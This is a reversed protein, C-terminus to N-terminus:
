EFNVVLSEEGKLVSLVSKMFKYFSPVECMISSEWLFDHAILITLYRALIKKRESFRSSLSSTQEEDMKNQKISKDADALTFGAIAEIISSEANAQTLQTIVMLDNLKSAMVAKVAVPLETIFNNVGYLLELDIAGLFGPKGRDQSKIFATGMEDPSMLFKLYEDAFYQTDKEILMESLLADTGGSVPVALCTFLELNRTHEKVFVICDM